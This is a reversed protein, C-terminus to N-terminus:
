HRRVGARLSTRRGCRVQYIADLTDKWFRMRAAALTPTRATDPARAVEANFARVALVARRADVPLFLACLYNDYDAASTARTCATAARHAGTLTAADTERAARTRETGFWSRATRKRLPTPTRRQRQPTRRGSFCRRRQGATSRVSRSHDTAGFLATGLSDDCSDKDKHRNSHKRM